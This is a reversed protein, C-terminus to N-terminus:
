VSRFYKVFSRSNEATRSNVNDDDVVASLTKQSNCSNEKFICLLYM